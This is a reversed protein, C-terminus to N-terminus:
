ISGIGTAADAGANGGNGAGFYWCGLASGGSSDSGSGGDSGGGDGTAARYSYSSPLLPLLLM